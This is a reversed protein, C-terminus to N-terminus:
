VFLYSVVVPILLSSFDLAFWSVDLVYKYKGADRFNMIRRWEFMEELERCTEPDCQGPSGSYAIDLMAHNLSTKKVKEIRVGEKGESDSVLVEVSGLARQAMEMLRGRQAARWPKDESHYIGTNMGRWLLRDDQKREWAGFEGSEGEVDSM